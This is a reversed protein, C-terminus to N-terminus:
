KKVAEFSVAVNVDDGLMGPFQDIGFDARKLVLETSFGTRQVGKPFEAEKGGQLFQPWEGKEEKGRKEVVAHWFKNLVSVDEPIRRVLTGVLSRALTYAELQAQSQSASLIVGSAAILIWILHRFKTM